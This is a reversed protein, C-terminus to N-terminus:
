SRSFVGVSVGICFSLTIGTWSSVRLSVVMDLVTVSSSFRRSSLSPSLMLMTDDWPFLRGALKVLRLYQCSSSHFRQSMMLKRGIDWWMEHIGPIVGHAVGCVVGVTDGFSVGCILGRHGVGVGTLAQDDLSLVESDVGTM